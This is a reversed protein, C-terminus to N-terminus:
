IKEFLWGGLVDFGPLREYHIHVTGNDITNVVEIDSQTWTGDLTDTHGSATDVWHSTGDAKLTLDQTETTAGSTTSSHWTGVVGDVSGKPTMPGLMLRDPIALYLEKSTGRTFTLTLNESDATYTGMDVPNGGRTDLTCTGDAAFTFLAREDVPETPDILSPTSRWTGILDGPESSLGSGSDSCAAVILFAFGYFRM